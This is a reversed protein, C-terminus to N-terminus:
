RALQELSSSVSPSVSPRVSCSFFTITVFFSFFILKFKKKTVDEPWFSVIEPIVTLSLRASFLVHLLTYGGGGEM